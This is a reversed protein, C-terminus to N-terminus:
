VKFILKIIVLIVYRVENNIFKFKNEIFRLYRSELERQKYLDVMNMNCNRMQYEENILKKGFTFEIKLCKSTILIDLESNGETAGWDIKDMCLFRCREDQELTKELSLELEDSCRSWDNSNYANVGSIFREKIYPRYLTFLSRKTFVYSVEYSMRMTDVLMSEKFGEQQMYFALGDLTDKDSPNVVLFTYASQVAMALDGQNWYCIHMYQHPKREM